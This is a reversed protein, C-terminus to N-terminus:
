VVQLACVGVQECVRVLASGRGVGEGKGVQLAHPAGMGKLRLCTGGGAEVILALADDDVPGPISGLLAVCLGEFAGGCGQAKRTRWHAPAGTHM